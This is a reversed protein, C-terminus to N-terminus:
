PPSGTAVYKDSRGGVSATARHRVWRDIGSGFQLARKPRDAVESPVGRWRAWRRFLAKPTPDPMRAEIPLAAAAAVFAPHLFPAHLRHGLLRAIAQSRPLEVRTLEELDRAARDLAREPDLGRFHAYGLFLEDAGQGCLVDVAGATALAAALALQVSRMPGSAEALEPALRDSLELLESDGIECPRWPVDLLRASRDADVLDRAGNRGVTFAEFQPRGRLEWALLGSDVGGSFLLGVPARGERWPTLTVTLAADLREFVERDEPPAPPAGLNAM